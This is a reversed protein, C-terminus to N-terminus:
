NLDQMKYNGNLMDQMSFNNSSVGDTNIDYRGPAPDAEEDDPTTGTYEDIDFGDNYDDQAYKMFKYVSVREELTLREVLVFSEELDIDGAVDKIYEYTNLRGKLICWEQEGDLMTICVLYDKEEKSKYPKTNDVISVMNRKEPKNIINVQQNVM